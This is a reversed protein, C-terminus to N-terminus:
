IFFKPCLVNVFTILFVVDEAPLRRYGKLALQQPVLEPNSKPNAELEYLLREAVRPDKMNKEFEKLVAEKVESSLGYNESVLKAYEVQGDVLAKSMREVEDITYAMASTSCM